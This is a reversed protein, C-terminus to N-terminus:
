FKKRKNREKERKREAWAWLLHQQTAWVTMVSWTNSLSAKFRLDKQRSRQPNPNCAHVRYMDGSHRRWPFIFKAIWYIEKETLFRSCKQSLKYGILVSLVSNRKYFGLLLNVVTDSVTQPKHCCGLWVKLDLVVEQSRGSCNLGLDDSSFYTAKFSARKCTKPGQM